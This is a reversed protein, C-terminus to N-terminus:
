LRARFSGAPLRRLYRHGAPVLGPWGALGPFYATATARGYHRHLAHSGAYLYFIGAFVAVPVYTGSCVLLEEQYFEMDSGVLLLRCLVM